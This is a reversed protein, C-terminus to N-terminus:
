TTGLQWGNKHLGHKHKRISEFPACHNDNICWKSGQGQKVERLFKVKLDTPSEGVLVQAHTHGRQPPMLYFKDYGHHVAGIDKEVGLIGSVPGLVSVRGMRSVNCMLSLHCM